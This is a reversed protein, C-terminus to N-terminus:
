NEQLIKQEAILEEIKEIFIKTHAEAIQKTNEHCRDRYQEMRTRLKHMGAVSIDRKYDQLYMELKWVESFCVCFSNKDSNSFKEFCNATADAMEVDFCNFRCKKIENWTKITYNEMNDLYLRKNKEFVLIDGDLFNKIKDYAGLEEKSFLERNEEDIIVRHNPQEEGIKLMENIKYDIGAYLSRWHIEPLSIYYMRGFCYNWLLLVYDDLSIKGDYAQVLLESYGEMLDIDELDMLRTLRVKDLLSVANKKEIEYSLEMELKEQNWEGSAIWHKISATIYRSDYFGPYLISIDQDIFLNGYRDKKQVIGARMCVVYSLFSLLWKETEEIGYKELQEYVRRFDQLACKLSRINHPRKELLKRIKENEEEIEKMTNGTTIQPSLDDLFEGSVAKGSFFATIEQKHAQLMAKYADSNKGINSIVSDVVIEYNPKYVITRQVIKEKMEAYKTNKTDKEKIKEENVVIITNVHLNECYDNICGLLDSTLIETRELDDFILIVKKDGIESKIEVFDLVNINLVGSVISKLPEPLLDISKDAVNKAGRGFMRIKENKKVEVNKRNTFAYLWNRKVENKIDEVSEMGFLSIRLLVHTDKLETKLVNELYYTKGCGWEGTLMLAGAPKEEECYYKLEELIDM